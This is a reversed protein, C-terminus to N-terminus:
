VKMDITAQTQREEETLKGALRDKFDDKHFVLQKLDKESQLFNEDIGFKKFKERPNSFIM